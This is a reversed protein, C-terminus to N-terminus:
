GVVEEEDDLVAEAEVEGSSDEPEALAVEPAVMENPTHSEDEAPPTIEGEGPESARLQPTAVEEFEADEIEGGVRRLNEAFVARRRDVERLVEDRRREATLIMRDLREFEEFKRTLTLATISTEDYGANSLLSHVYKVWQDKRQAYGRVAKEFQTDSLMPALLARVGIDHWAGFLKARLNRVRMIEFTHYSFDQVWCDEIFDVPKLAARVHLHLKAYAEQDEGPLLPPSGFIARIEAPLTATAPAPLPLTPQATLKSKSTVNTPM